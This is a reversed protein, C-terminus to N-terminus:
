FPSSFSASTGSLVFAHIQGCNRDPTSKSDSYCPRELQVGSLKTNLFCNAKRKKRISYFYSKRDYVHPIKNSADRDGLTHVVFPFLVSVCTATDRGQKRLLRVQHRLTASGM